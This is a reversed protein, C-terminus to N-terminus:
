TDIVQQKLTVATVILADMFDRITFREMMIAPRRVLTLTSSANQSDSFFIAACRRKVSDAKTVTAQAFASAPALVLSALFATKPFRM